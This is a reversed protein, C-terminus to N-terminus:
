AFFVLANKPKLSPAREVQLRSKIQAKQVHSAGNRPVTTLFYRSSPTPAAPCLLMLTGAAGQHCSIAAGM